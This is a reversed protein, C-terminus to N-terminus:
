ISASITLATMDRDPQSRRILALCHGNVRRARALSQEAAIRRADASAAKKEAKDVKEEAWLRHQESRLLDADALLTALYEMSVKGGIRVRVRGRSDVTLRSGTPSFVEGIKNISYGPFSPLNVTEM